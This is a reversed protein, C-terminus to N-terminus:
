SKSLLSTIRQFGYAAFGAVEGDRGVGVNALGERNGGPDKVVEGRCERLDGLEGLDPVVLVVGALREM